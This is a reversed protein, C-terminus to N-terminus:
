ERTHKVAARLVRGSAREVPANAGVTGSWALPHASDNEPRLVAADERTEGAGIAAPIAVFLTPLVLVGLVAVHRLRSAFALLRCTM